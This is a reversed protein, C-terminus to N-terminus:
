GLTHVQVHIINNSMCACVVFILAISQLKCGHQNNCPVAPYTHDCPLSVVFLPWIHALYNCSRLYCYMYSVITYVITYRKHVGCMYMCACLWTIYLISQTPGEIIIRIPWSNVIVVGLCCRSCCNFVWDDSCHRLYSLFGGSLPEVIFLRPLSGSTPWNWSLGILDLPVYEREQLM